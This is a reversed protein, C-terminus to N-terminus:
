CVIYENISLTKSNKGFHTQLSPTQITSAHMCSAVASASAISGINSSSSPLNHVILARKVPGHLLCICLAWHFPHSSIHCIHFSRSPACKHRMSCFWGNLGGRTSHSFWWWWSSYICIDGGDVPKSCANVCCMARPQIRLSYIFARYLHMHLMEYATWRDVGLVRCIYLMCTLCIWWAAQAICCTTTTTM